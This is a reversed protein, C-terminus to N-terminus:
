FENLGHLPVSPKMHITLYEADAPEFLLDVFKGLRALNRARSVQRSALFRHCNPHALCEPPVIVDGASVTTMAM